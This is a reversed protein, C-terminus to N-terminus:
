SCASASECVAETAMISSSRFPLDHRGFGRTPERGRVAAVAALADLYRRIEDGRATHNRDTIRLIRLTRRQHKPRRAPRREHSIHLRPVQGEHSRGHCYAASANNCAAETATILWNHFPVRHRGFGRTPVLGRVAVVAALADLYRRVEDGRATHDGDTVRLIRLTRRQHEPRRAPRREHSIHLRPM